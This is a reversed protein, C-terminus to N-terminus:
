LNELFKGLDTSDLDQKTMVRAIRWNEAKAWALSVDGLSDHHGLAGYKDGKIAKVAADSLYNETARRELVHCPIGLKACTEVFAQRSPDLPGNAMSRESDIIASVDDSIRLIEALETERGGSILAGGGLPLVITHHDMRYLRLFQQFTKVDTVGEVLLVKSFGMERYGSFSLEGLLEPLRPYQELAQVSNGEVQDRHNVYVRDASARALGINHTAYLVGQTAFTGLTTLFELQLSPHLNLEPEDIMLYTPRRVAANALVLIFQALGSGTEDLRYSKGDILLQLTQGDASPNIQLNSFGYIRKIMETVQFASVNERKTSGSQYQRWAEIFPQGIRIDYYNDSGGVNIANRFSGFYM